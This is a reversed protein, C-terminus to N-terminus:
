SGRKPPTQRELLTAADWDIFPWGPPAELLEAIRSVEDMYWPQTGKQKKYLSDKGIGVQAALAETSLGKKRRAKKVREGIEAPDFRAPKKTSAVDLLM